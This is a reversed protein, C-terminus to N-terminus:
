EARTADADCAGGFLSLISAGVAADTCWRGEWWRCMGKRVGLQARDLGAGRVDLGGLWETSEAGEELVVGARRAEEVFHACVHPATYKGAAVYTRAAPDRRLLALLAALLADHSADFHLLDSLIVVDYGDASARPLLERCIPHTLRRLPM